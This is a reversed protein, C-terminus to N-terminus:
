ELDLERKIIIKENRRERKIREAKQQQLDKNIYGICMTYEAMYSGQKIMIGNMSCNENGCNHKSYEGFNQHKIRKKKLMLEQNKHIQRWWEDLDANTLTLGITQVKIYTWPDKVQLFAFSKGFFQNAYERIRIQEAISLNENETTSRYLGLTNFDTFKKHNDIFYLYEDLKLTNFTRNIKM